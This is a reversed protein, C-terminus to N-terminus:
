RIYDKLLIAIPSLEITCLYLFLYFVGSPSISKMQVFLRGLWGLYLIFILIFIIHLFNNVDIVTQYLGIFLVPLLVLGLLRTLLLHLLLHALAEDRGMFINALFQILILKLFYGTSAFAIIWIFYQPQAPFFYIQISISLM